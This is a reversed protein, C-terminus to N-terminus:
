PKKLMSEEVASLVTSTYKLYKNDGLNKLLHNQEAIAAAFVRKNAEADLVDALATRAWGEVGVNALLRKVHGDLFTNKVDEDLDKWEIIQPLADISQKIIEEVQKKELPLRESRDIDVAKEIAKEFVQSGVSAVLDKYKTIDYNTKMSTFALNRLRKKDTDSIKGEKDRLRNAEKAYMKVTNLADNMIMNIQGEEIQIDYKEKLIKALIPGIITAILVLMLQSELIQLPVNTKGCYNDNACIISLTMLVGILTLVGILLAMMWTGFNKKKASPSKHDTEEILIDPPNEIPYKKDRLPDSEWKEKIDKEWNKINKNTASKVEVIFNEDDIFESYKKTFLKGEDTEVKDKSKEKFHELHDNIINQAAKHKTDNETKSNNLAM